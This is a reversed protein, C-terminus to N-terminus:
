MCWRWVTNTRRKGADAGHGSWQVPVPNHVRRVGADRCEVPAGGRQPRTRRPGCREFRHEAHHQCRRHGHARGPAGVPRQEVVRGVRRKQGFAMGSCQPLWQVFDPGVDPGIDARQHRAHHGAFCDTKGVHRQHHRATAVFFFGPPREGVARQAIVAVDGAKEINRSFCRSANDGRPLAIRRLGLEDLAIDRQLLFDNRAPFGGAPEGGHDLVKRNANAQKVHIPLGDQVIGHEPGKDRVKRGRIGHLARPFVPAAVIHLSAQQCRLIIRACARQPAFEHRGAFFEKSARGIARVGPNGDAGHRQDVAGALLGADDEYEVVDVLALADQEIQLALDRLPRLIAIRQPHQRRVDHQAAREIARDRGGIRRPRGHQAPALM